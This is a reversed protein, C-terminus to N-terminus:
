NIHLSLYFFVLKLRHVLKRDPDAVNVTAIEAVVEVNVIAIKIAIENVAGKAAGRAVEKAVANKEGIM